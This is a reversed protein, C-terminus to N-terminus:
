VKLDEKTFTNTKFIDGFGGWIGGRCGGGTGSFLPLAEVKAEAPCPTGAPCPHPVKFHLQAAFQPPPPPTFPGPLPSSPPASCGRAPGQERGHVRPNQPAGAARRSGPHEAGSGGGGWSPSGRTGDGVGSPPGLPRHARGAARAGSGERSAVQSPPRHEPVSPVWRGSLNPHISTLAPPPPPPSGDPVPVIQQRDGGRGRAGRHQCLMAQVRSFFRCGPGGSFDDTGSAPPGRPTPHLHDGGHPVAPSLTGLGGGGGSGLIM